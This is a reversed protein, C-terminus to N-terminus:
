MSIFISECPNNVHGHDPGHIAFPFEIFLDVGVSHDNHILAMVCTGCGRDFNQLPYIGLINISYRCRWLSAIIQLLNDVHQQPRNPVTIVCPLSGQFLPDAM